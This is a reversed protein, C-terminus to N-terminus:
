FVAYALRMLSQLESTHEESRREPALVVGAASTNDALVDALRFRYGTFRSDIIEAALLVSDVYQGIEDIGVPESIDRSTVFAIEPEIRPQAWEDLRAAVEDASVVMADTLFGVIPRAVGM